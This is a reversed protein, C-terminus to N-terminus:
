KKDQAASCRSYIQYNYNQTLLLKSYNYLFKSTNAQLIKHTQDHLHDRQTLASLSM